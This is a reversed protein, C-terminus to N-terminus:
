NWKLLNIHPNANFQVVSNYM